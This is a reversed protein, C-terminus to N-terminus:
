IQGLLEAAEKEDGARDGEEASERTDRAKDAKYEEYKSAVEKRVALEKEMAKVEEAQIKELEGHLKKLDEDNMFQVLDRIRQMQEESLSRISKALVLVSDPTIVMEKRNFGNIIVCFVRM